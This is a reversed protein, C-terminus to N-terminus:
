FGQNTGMVLTPCLRPVSLGIVSVFGLKTKGVDHDILPVTPDYQQPTM